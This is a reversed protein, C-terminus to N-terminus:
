SRDQTRTAGKVMHLFYVVSGLIRLCIRVVCKRQENAAARTGWRGRRRCLWFRGEIGCARWAGLPLLGAWTYITRALRYVTSSQTRGAHSSNHLSSLPHQRHHLLWISPYSADIIVIRLNLILSCLSHFLNYCLLSLTVM